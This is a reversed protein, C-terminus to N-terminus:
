TKTTYVTGAATTTENLEGLSVLYRLHAIAEGLAFSMQQVDLPRSFLPQLVDAAQVGNACSERLLDLRSDHHAILSHIREHLGIFPKGHSPLVLTNAPLMLLSNLSTFYSALPNTDASSPLLSINPSISPLIQDAAILLNDDACYFMLMSPAHGFGTMVTFARGGMHFQDGASLTQWAHSAPLEAVTSRYGHGISSLPKIHQESLGHDAYWNSFNAVYDETSSDWILEMTAIEDAHSLLKSGRSHFWGALGCHDPHYHTIVTRSPVEDGFLNQWVARTNRSNIGTDILTVGDTDSMLWCNVDQLAWPVAVRVWDLGELVTIRQDLEPATFPFELQSM